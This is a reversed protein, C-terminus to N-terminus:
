TRVLENLWESLLVKSELFMGCFSFLSVFPTREIRFLHTRFSADQVKGNTLSQDFRKQRDEGEYVNISLDLHQMEVKGLPTLVPDRTDLHICRAIMLGSPDDPRPLEEIMMTLYDDERREVHVELRRVKKVHYDWYEAHGESAPRDLLHYVASDKMGKRLSFDELWRPNAPVLTAETLLQMPETASYYGADLRVFAPASPWEKQAWNVIGPSLYPCLKTFGSGARYIESGSVSSVASVEILEFDQRGIERRRIKDFIEPVSQFLHQGTNYHECLRKVERRKWEHEIEFTMAFASLRERRNRGAFFDIALYGSLGNEEESSLMSERFTLLQAVMAARPGPNEVLEHVAVNADKVIMALRGLKEFYEDIEVLFDEELGGIIGFAKRTGFAPGYRDTYGDSTQRVEDGMFTDFIDRWFLSFPRNM